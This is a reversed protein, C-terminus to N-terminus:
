CSSLDINMGEVVEEARQGNPPEGRGLELVCARVLGKQLLM